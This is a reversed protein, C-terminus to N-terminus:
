TSSSMVKYPSLFNLMNSAVSSGRTLCVHLCLDIHALVHLGLASSAAMRSGIEPHSELSKSMGPSWDQDLGARRLEVARGVWMNQNNKIIKTKIIKYSM